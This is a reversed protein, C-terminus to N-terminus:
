IGPEGVSVVPATWADAHMDDPALWVPPRKGARTYHERHSWTSRILLCAAAIDEPTPDCGQWGSRSASGGARM